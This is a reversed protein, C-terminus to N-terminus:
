HDTKSVILTGLALRPSMLARVRIAVRLKMTVIDAETIMLAAQHARM